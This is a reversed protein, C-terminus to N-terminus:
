KLKEEIYQDVGCGMLLPLNKKKLANKLTEKPIGYLNAIHETSRCHTMLSWPFSRSPSRVNDCCPQKEYDSPFWRGGKDTKGEPHDTRNRRKIYTVAAYQEPTM